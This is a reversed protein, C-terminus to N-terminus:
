RAKTIRTPEGSQLCGGGGGWFIHFGIYNKIRLPVSDYAGLNKLFSFKKCKDGKM